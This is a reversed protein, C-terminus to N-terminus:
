DDHWVTRLIERKRSRAHLPWAQVQLGDACEFITVSQWHAARQAIKELPQLPPLLCGPAAVRQQLRNDRFITVIAPPALDVMRLALAAFSLTSYTEKLAPLSFELRDADARFWRTPALLEAAFSDATNERADYTSPDNEESNEHHLRPWFYEGLEHAVAWQQREATAEPRILITTQGARRVLRARGAQRADLRVELGLARAVRLADVPPQLIGVNQLVEQVLEHLAEM